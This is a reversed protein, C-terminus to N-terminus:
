APGETPHYIWVHRLPSEWYGGDCWQVEAGGEFAGETAQTVGDSGYGCGDVGKRPSVVDRERVLAHASILFKTGESVGNVAYPELHTQTRTKDYGTARRDSSTKAGAEGDSSPCSHGPSLALLPAAETEARDASRGDGLSSM